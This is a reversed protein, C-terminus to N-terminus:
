LIGVEFQPPPRSRAKRMDLMYRGGIADPVGDAQQATLSRRACRFGQERKERRSRVLFNLLGDVM